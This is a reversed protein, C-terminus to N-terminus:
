SVNSRRDAEETQDQETKEVETKDIEISNQGTMELYHLYLYYVAFVVLLSVECVFIDMHCVCQGILIGSLLLHLTLISGFIVPSKSLHLGMFLIMGFFILGGFVYHIATNEEILIVGYIGILISLIISFSLLSGREWEYWITFIGMAVMGLLISLQCEPMNLVSSISNNKESQYHYGVCGIPCLYSFVM